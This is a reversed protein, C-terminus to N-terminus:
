EQKRSRRSLSFLSLEPYSQCRIAHVNRGVLVLDSSSLPPSPQWSLSKTRVPRGGKESHSRRRFVYSHSARSKSPPGMSVGNVKDMGCLAVKYYLQRQPTCLTGKTPSCSRQRTPTSGYGQLPSPSCVLLRAADRSPPNNVVGDEV